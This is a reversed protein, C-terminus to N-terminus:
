QQWTCARSAAPLWLPHAGLLEGGQMVTLSAEVGSAGVPRDAVPAPPTPPSSLRILTEQLSTRVFAVLTVPSGSMIPPWVIM